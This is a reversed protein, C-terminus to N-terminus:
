NVSYWPIFHDTSMRATAPANGFPDWDHISEYLYRFARLIPERLALELEQYAPRNNMWRFAANDVRDDSYIANVLVLATCGEFGVSSPHNSALEVVEAPFWTDQFRCHKKSLLADLAALHRAVDCGYDNKAIEGREGVTLQKAITLLPEVIDYKETTLGDNPELHIDPSVLSDNKAEKLGNMIASRIAAPANRYCDALESWDQGFDSGREPHEFRDLIIMCTAFLFEGSNEDPSCSTRGLLRM